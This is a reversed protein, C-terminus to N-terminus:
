ATETKEVRFGRESLEDEILVLLDLGLMYTPSPPVQGDRLARLIRARVGWLLGDPWFCIPLTTPEM